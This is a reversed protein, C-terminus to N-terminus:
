DMPSIDKISVKGKATSLTKSLIKTDPNYPTTLKYEEVKKHAM